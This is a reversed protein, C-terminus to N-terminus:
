PRLCLARPRFVVEDVYRHAMLDVRFRVEFSDAAPWVGVSFTLETAPAPAPIMVLFSRGAGAGTAAAVATIALYSAGVMMGAGPTVAGAFHRAASWAAQEAVNERFERLGDAIPCHDETSAEYRNTM